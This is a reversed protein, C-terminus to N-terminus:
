SSIIFIRSCPIVSKETSSRLAICIGKFEQIDIRATDPDPMLRVVTGESEMSFHSLMNVHAKLVARLAEKLRDPDTGAPLPLLLPINYATGQLNKQWDLYIGLETM